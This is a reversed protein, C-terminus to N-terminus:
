KNKRNSFEKLEDKLLMNITKSDYLNLHYKTKIIEPVISLPIEIVPFKGLLHRDRWKCM